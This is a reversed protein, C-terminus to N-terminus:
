RSGPRGGVANPREASGRVRCPNGCSGGKTEETGEGRAGPHDRPVSGSQGRTGCIEGVRESAAGKGVARRSGDTTGMGRAVDGLVSGPLGSAPNKQDAARRYSHRSM